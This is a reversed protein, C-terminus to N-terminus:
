AQVQNSSDDDVLNASDDKVPNNGSIQINTINMSNNYSLSADLRIPSWFNTFLEPNFVEVWRTFVGNIKRNCIVWVQDDSDDIPLIEISEFSGQLGDPYIGDSVGAVVRSWGEVQQDPDRMFVAIQGDARVVWIRDYPSVQAAIQVAGLGDRLIHDALIMMSTAKYKSTYLDYTLQRIYFTNAQVYFLYGGLKVPQQAM